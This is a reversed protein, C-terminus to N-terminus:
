FCCCIPTNRSRTKHTDQVRKIRRRINRHLQRYFPRNDAQKLVNPLYPHSSPRLPIALLAPLNHISRLLCLASSATYSSAQLVFSLGPKAVRTEDMGILWADMYWWLVLIAADYVQLSWIRRMPGISVIREKVCDANGDNVRTHGTERCRLCM